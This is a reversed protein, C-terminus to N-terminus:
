YWWSVDWQTTDHYLLAPLEPSRGQHYQGGVDMEFFIFIPKARPLHMPVYPVLMTYLASYRHHQRISDWAMHEFQKSRFFSIGKTRVDDVVFDICTHELLM